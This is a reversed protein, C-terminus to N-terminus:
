FRVKTSIDVNTHMRPMFIAMYLPPPLQRAVMTLGFVAPNIKLHVFSEHMAEAPGVKSPAPEASVLDIPRYKASPEM